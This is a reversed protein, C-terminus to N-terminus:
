EEGPQIILFTAGTIFNAADSALFLILDAIEEPYAWRGLPYNKGLNAEAGRFKETILLGKAQEPYIVGIPHYQTTHLLCVEMSVEKDFILGVGTVGYHNTTM